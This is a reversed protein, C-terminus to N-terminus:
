MEQPPTSKGEGMVNIDATNYVFRSAFLYQCSMGPYLPQLTFSMVRKQAIGFNFINCHM